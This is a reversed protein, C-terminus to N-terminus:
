KHRGRQVCVSFSRPSLNRSHLPINFQETFFFHLKENVHWTRHCLIKRNINEEITNLLTADVKMTQNKNKLWYCHVVNFLLWSYILFFIKRMETANKSFCCILEFFNRFSVIWLFRQNKELNSRILTSRPKNDSGVYFLINWFCTLFIELRENSNFYQRLIKTMYQLINWRLILIKVKQFIKSFM